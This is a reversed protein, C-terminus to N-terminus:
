LSEQWYFYNNLNKVPKVTDYGYVENYPSGGGGRSKLNKPRSVREEFHLHAGDSRGTNGM